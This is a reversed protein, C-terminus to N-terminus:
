KVRKAKEVKGKEDTTTLSDKDVKIKIKQSMTKPSGPVLAALPNEIEVEMLEDELFKYKGPMTMSKDGMKAVFAVTGDAKFEMTNGKDAEETSEWKGVIQDKPKSAGCGVAFALLASLLLFSVKRM